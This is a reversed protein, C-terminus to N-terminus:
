QAINRLKGRSIGSGAGEEGVKRVRGKRGPERGRNEGVGREGGQGGGSVPTM